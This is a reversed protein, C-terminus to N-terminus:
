LLGRNVFAARVKTAVAQGYLNGAVAVTTAYRKVLGETRVIVSM